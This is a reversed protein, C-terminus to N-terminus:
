RTIPFGGLPFASSFYYTWAIPFFCARLGQQEGSMPTIERLDQHEIAPFRPGPPVVYADFGVAYGSQIITQKTVPKLVTPFLGNVTEEYDWQPGCNGKFKIEERWEILSSEVDAYEAQATIAFFRSNAYQTADGRPWSHQLIKVGSICTSSNLLRHPTPTGNNEYLGVDKYDDRYANILEIMAATLASPGDYQLEGELHLRMIVSIRKGRRSYRRRVQFSRTNVENVPHDHTGIRIFM